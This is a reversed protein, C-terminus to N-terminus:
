GAEFDELAVAVRALVGDWDGPTSQRFLRAAPYWPSDEREHLWRWDMAYPLLIWVPKALAGALHAISTDVSIVLDMHSVLAATDSFNELESAFFPIDSRSVLFERDGPRVDNQLFVFQTGPRVLTAIKALAISRNRDNQHTPSGSSAVGIRLQSKPGLRAAWTELAAEGAHLYPIPAPVNELRTDMALPLSLLPCHVDFAPLVYGKGLIQDTGALGSFLSVLAPQVELLVRAGRGAVAQTYRAFQITDGFGQEAHLLITKGRIDERGLWLPQAFDRRPATFTDCQWRWEHDRWGQEFNGLALRCLGRNFRASAYAPDLALAADFSEIADAYRGLDHLVLGRNNLAKVHGPKFALVRECSAVAEEYRDLQVLSAVRNCLAEVYGPNVNLAADYSALAEAHRRLQHLANGKNNHTEASGPHLALSRDYSALADAHRQQGCQADGLGRWAEAFGPKLALAQDYSAQAKAFRKLAILANGLNNLAEPFDPRLESAHKHSATADEFRGLAQLVTGRNNSLEANAPQLRLAADLRSLATENDGRQHAILGLLHLADANDGNEKLVEHYIREAEDLQGAQQLAFGAAVTPAALNQPSSPM